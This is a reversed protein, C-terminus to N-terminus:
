FGCGRGTLIVLSDTKRTDGGGAAALAGWHPLKSSPMHSHFARSLGCVLNAVADPCLDRRIVGAEARLEKFGDRYSM